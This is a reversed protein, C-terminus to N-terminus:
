RRSNHELRERWRDREHHYRENRLRVDRVRDNDDRRIEPERRLDAERRTSGYEARNGSQYSSGFRRQDRSEALVPTRIAAASAVLMIMTGIARRMELRRQKWKM